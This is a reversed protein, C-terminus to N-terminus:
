PKSYTTDTKYRFMENKKKNILKETKSHLCYWKKSKNINRGCLQPEDSGDACNTVGDCYKEKSICAGYYCQFQDNNCRKYLCM